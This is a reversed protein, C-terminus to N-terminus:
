GRVIKRFLESPSPYEVPATPNNPNRHLNKPTVFGARRMRETAVVRTLYPTPNKARTKVTVKVM